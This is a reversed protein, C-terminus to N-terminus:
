GPRQAEVEEGRQVPQEPRRRPRQLRRRHRDVDRRDGRRQPDALASGAPAATDADGGQEGDRDVAVPLQQEGLRPVRVQRQEGPEDDQEGRPRHQAAVRQHEHREDDGSRQAGLGVHRVEHGAAHQRDTREHTAASATANRRGAVSPRGCRRRRRPARLRATPARREDVLQGVVRAVDARQEVVEAIWGLRHEADGVAQAQGEAVEVHPRSEGPEGAVELAGSAEDRRRLRPAPRHREADPQDCRHDGPAVARRRQPSQVDHDGRRQRRPGIEIARM